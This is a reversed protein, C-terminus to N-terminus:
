FWSCLVYSFSDGKPFTNEPYLDRNRDLLEFYQWYLEEYHCEETCPYPLLHSRAEARALPVLGLHFIIFPFEILLDFFKRSTAQINRSCYRILAICFLEAAVLCLSIVVFAIRFNTPFSLLFLSAVGVLIKLTTITSHTVM